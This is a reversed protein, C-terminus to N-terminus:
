GFQGDYTPGFDNHLRLKQHRKHTTMNSKPNEQLHLPSKEFSQTLDRRREVSQLSEQHLIEYTIHPKSCWNCLFVDIICWIRAKYWRM